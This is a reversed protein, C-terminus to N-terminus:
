ELYERFAVFAANRCLEELASGSFGETIKAISDIDVCPDMNEQSLIVNLIHKRQEVSPLRISFSKPMRRLIAPDVDLPRNTAGIIIVRTSQTRNTNLGDWLSMFQAKMMATAEHDESSRERLFSDIEDIFIICPSIKVALSFLAEVLKQSEGYWKEVISSVKLNIFNCSSEKAIVQALMTKGCGPPGYLLIGKPPQLLRSQFQFLDPRTFPLIVLEKLEKIVADLGGIDDWTLHIDEPYIVDSTLMIEYENLVTQGGLRKMLKMYGSQAEKSRKSMPNLSSLIWKIGFYVLVQSVALVGIDILIKKDASVM